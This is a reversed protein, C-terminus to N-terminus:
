DKKDNIKEQQREEQKKKELLLCCILHRLSQLESTYEESRERHAGGRREVHQSPGGRNRPPCAARCAGQHARGHRCQVSRFLTTYPFLTSIPPPPSMSFFVVFFFCFM